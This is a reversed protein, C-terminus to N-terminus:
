MNHVTMLCRYLASLYSTHAGNCKSGRNNEKLGTKWQAHGVRLVVVFERSITRHFPTTAKLGAGRQGTPKEPHKYKRVRGATFTISVAKM